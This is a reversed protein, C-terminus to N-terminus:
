TEVILNILIYSVQCYSSIIIFHEHVLIKIVLQFYSQLSIIQM